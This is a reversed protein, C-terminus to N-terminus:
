QQPALEYVLVCCLTTTGYDNFIASFSQKYPKSRYSSALGLELLGSSVGSPGTPLAIILGLEWCVLMVM